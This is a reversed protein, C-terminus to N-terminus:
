FSGSMFMQETLVTKTRKFHDQPPLKTKIYDEIQEYKVTYPVIILWVQNDDCAQQKIRDRYLQKNFQDECNHFPNPYVYHQIGNYEFAIKLEDNYGDLELSRGTKSNVIWDPKCKLFPRSYIRELINRCIEEGRSSFGYQKKNNRTPLPKQISFARGSEVKSEQGFHTQTPIQRQPERNLYTKGPPEQGFHTQSPPAQKLDQHGPQTTAILKTLDNGFRKFFNGRRNSFGTVEKIEGKETLEPQKKTLVLITIILVLILIVWIYWKVIM